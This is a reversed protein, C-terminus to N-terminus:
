VSIDYCEDLLVIKYTRYLFKFKNNGLDEINLGVKFKSKVSEDSLAYIIYDCVKFTIKGKTVNSIHGGCKECKFTNHNYFRKFDGVYGCSCYYKGRGRSILAIPQGEIGELKKYKSM